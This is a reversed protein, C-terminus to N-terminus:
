YTWNLIKLIMKLSPILGLHSQRSSPKQAFLGSNSLATTTKLHDSLQQNRQETMRILCRDRSPQGGNSAEFECNSDRFGIWAREATELKSKRYSPLNKQLKQYTQNLRRDVLQYNNSNAPPVKKYLYSNLDSTRRQTLQDKCQAALMPQMTGGKAYSSYFTCESDRFRIWSLQAKTLQQRRTESLRPLLTQYAQNLARDSKQFNQGACYTMESQTQPNTCNPQEALSPTSLVPVTAIAIAGVVSSFGPAFHNFNVLKVMLSM